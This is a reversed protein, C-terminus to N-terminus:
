LVRFKSSVLSPSIIIKAITFKGKITQINYVKKESNGKSINSAERTSPAPIYLSNIRITIGADYGPTTDVANSESINQQFSDKQLILKDAAFEAGSVAKM